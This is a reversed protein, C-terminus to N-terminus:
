GLPLPNNESTGQMVCKENCNHNSPESVFWMANNDDWAAGDDWEWPLGTLECNSGTRRVGIWVCAGGVRSPTGIATLHKRCVARPQHRDALSGKKVNCDLYM